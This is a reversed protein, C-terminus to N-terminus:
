QDKIYVDRLSDIEVYQKAVLNLAKKEDIKRHVPNFESGRTDKNLWFLDDVDIEHVRYMTWEISRADIPTDPM